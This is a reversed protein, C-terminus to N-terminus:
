PRAQQQTDGAVRRADGEVRSTDSLQFLSSMRGSARTRKGLQVKKGGKKGGKKAAERLKREARQKIGEIEPKLLGPVEELRYKLIKMDMPTINTGAFLGNAALAEVWSRHSAKAAERRKREAADKIGEIEPELLGPVEELRYKLITMDVPTINTGLFLVNAAM